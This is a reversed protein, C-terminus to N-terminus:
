RASIERMNIGYATAARRLCREEEIELQLADVNVVADAVRAGAHRGAEGYRRGIRRATKPSAAWKSLRALEQLEVDFAKIPHESAM